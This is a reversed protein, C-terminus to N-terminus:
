ANCGELIVRRISALPLVTEGVDAWADPMENWVREFFEGKVLGQACTRFARVEDASIVDRYDRLIHEASFDGADFGPDFANNHDIIYADGNVLLNSNYDTRDTNHILEDFWYIKALVKKDIHALDIQPDFVDKSNEVNLSGFVFQNSDTVLEPVEASQMGSWVCFDRRDLRFIDFAPIPLGM